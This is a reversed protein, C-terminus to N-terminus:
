SFNENKLRNFICKSNVVMIKYDTLNLEKIWDKIDIDSNNNKSLYFIVEKSSQIVIYPPIKVVNM